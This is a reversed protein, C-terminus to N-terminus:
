LVGGMADINVINVVAEGLIAVGVMQVMSISEHLFMVMSVGYCVECWWWGWAAASQRGVGRGVDSSPVDGQWAMLTFEWSDGGGKCGM